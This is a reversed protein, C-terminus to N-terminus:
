IQGRYHCPYQFCVIDELGRCSAPHQGFTLSQCWWIVNSLLCRRRWALKWQMLRCVKRQTAGEVDEAWLTAVVGPRSRGWHCSTSTRTLNSRGKWNGDSIHTGEIFQNRLMMNREEDTKPVLRNIRNAVEVLGHSYAVISEWGNMGFFKVKNADATQQDPWEIFENMYRLFADTVRTVIRSVTSQNVGILEGVVNQFTGTAYFRLTVLVQLVPTLSGQRALLHEIHQQVGDTLDLIAQRHFRFKKYIEDDNYVLLFIGSWRRWTCPSAYWVKDVLKHTVRVKLAM